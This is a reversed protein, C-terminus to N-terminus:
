KIRVPFKMKGDVVHDVPGLTKSLSFEKSAEPEPPVDAQPKRKFSEDTSGGGVSDGGGGRTALTVAIEDHRVAEDIRKQIGKISRGYFYSYFSAGGRVQLRARGDAKKPVKLDPIRVTSDGATGTLTVRLRLTAGPSTRVPADSTVKTWSGGKWQEVGGLKYTSEDPTLTTDADVADVTVGDLYAVTYLLDSLQYIPDYVLDGGTYRDDFSLEFPTGNDDGSITWGEVATGEPNTGLVRESNTILQFFTADPLADAVPVETTGTRSTAGNTVTSTVTAGSPAPGFTGTIGTLRDQFITGSVEGINAVKFPSGLSDPQIYLADAPHLGETTKGLQYLPHGFGVVNGNCVSTATGVGAFTIDGYAASAALNGGAVITEPGAAQAGAKGLVYTDKDLFAPGKAKAQALQRATVGAVGFPVPLEEFGQSAEARTIGARDAVLQTQARSLTAGGGSPAALYDDMQEFPTVGAIPSAGYSLGYAVAGVLRGDAAYVPSGSMGQWVGGTQAFADMDLDIMIMDVGPAIGDNLTGLVTGTFGVPATGTVVTLGTVADDKAVQSAPFPTACDNAPAAAAPAAAATTGLAGLAGASLTLGACTLAVVGSRRRAPRPTM